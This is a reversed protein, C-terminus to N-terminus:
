NKKLHKTSNQDSNKKSLNEIVSKIEKNVILIEMKWLFKQTLKSLKHTELFKEM